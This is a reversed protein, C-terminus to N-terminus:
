FTGLGHYNSPQARWPLGVMTHAVGANGLALAGADWDVQCPGAVDHCM